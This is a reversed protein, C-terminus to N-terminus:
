YPNTYTLLRDYDSQWNELLDIVGEKSYQLDYNELHQLELTFNDFNIFGGYRIEAPLEPLEEIKKISESIDSENLKGELITKGTSVDTIWFTSTIFNVQSLNIQGNGYDYWGQGDQKCGVLGFSISILAGMIMKKM